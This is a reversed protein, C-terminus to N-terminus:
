RGGASRHHRCPGVTSEAGPLLWRTGSLLSGTIAPVTESRGLCCRLTVARGSQSNVGARRSALRGALMSLLSRSM